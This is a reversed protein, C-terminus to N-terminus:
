ATAAGKFLQGHSKARYRRGMEIHKQCKKPKPGRHHPSTEAVPEGCKGRNWNCRGLTKPDRFFIFTM